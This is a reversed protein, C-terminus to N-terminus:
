SDVLPFFFSFSFCNTFESKWWCSVKYQKVILEPKQARLLLSEFQPMNNLSFANKAQGILVDSTSDQDHIEAVRAANEWDQNHIYRLNQSM